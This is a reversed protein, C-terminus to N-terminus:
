QFLDTLSAQNAQNLLLQSLPFQSLTTVRAEKAQTEEEEKLLFRPKNLKTEPALTPASQPLQHHQSKTLVTTSPCLNPGAAEMEETLKAAPDTEELSMMTRAVKAVKAVEEQSPPTTETRELAEQGHGAGHDQTAM